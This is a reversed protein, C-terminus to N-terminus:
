HASLHLEQEPCWELSPDKVELLVWGARGPGHSVSSRSPHVEGEAWGEGVVTLGCGM